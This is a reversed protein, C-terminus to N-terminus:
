CFFFPYEVKEITSFVNPIRAFRKLIKMDGIPRSGLFISDITIAHQLKCLKRRFLLQLGCLRYGVQCNPCQLGLCVDTIVQHNADLDLGM